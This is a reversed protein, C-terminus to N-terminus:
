RERQCCLTAAEASVVSLLALEAVHRDNDNPPSSRVRGMVPLVVEIGLVHSRAIGYALAATGGANTSLNGGITCTGESPSPAACLLFVSLREAWPSRMSAADLRNECRRASSAAPATAQQQLMITESLRYGGRIMSPHRLTACTARAVAHDPMRVAISDLGATALEAVPCGAARPLVLTLPGPWLTAALREADTFGGAGTRVKFEPWVDEPVKTTLNRM